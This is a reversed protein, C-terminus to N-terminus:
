TILVNVIDNDVGLVHRPRMTSLQETKCLVQFGKTKSLLKLYVKQISFTILTCSSVWTPLVTQFPWPKISNTSYWTRQYPQLHLSPVNQENNFLAIFSQFLNTIRKEQRKSKSEFVM